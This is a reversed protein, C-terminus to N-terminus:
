LRPGRRRAAPLFPIFLQGRPMSLCRSHSAPRCLPCLRVRRSTM